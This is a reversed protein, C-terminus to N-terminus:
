LVQEWQKRYLTAVKKATTLIDDYSSPELTLAMEVANAWRELHHVDNEGHYELFKFVNMQMNLNKKLFPLM